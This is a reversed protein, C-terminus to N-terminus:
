IKYFQFLCEDSIDKEVYKRALRSLISIIEESFENVDDLFDKESDDEFIKPFSKSIEQIKPLQTYLQQV